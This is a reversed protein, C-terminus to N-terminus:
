MEFKIWSEGNEGFVFYQPYLIEALLEIDDAIQAYHHQLRLTGDVLFVQNNKVAPVDKWEPLEFVMPLEGLLHPLSKDRALIILVEADIKGDPKTLPPKGGATRILIDTYASGGYEFPVLRNVLLVEQKQEQPIFKLKHIVINIREELNEILEEAREVADFAEAVTRIQQYVDTINELTPIILHQHKEEDFPTESVSLARLLNLIEANSYM